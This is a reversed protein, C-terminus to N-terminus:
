KKGIVVVLDSNEVVSNNEELEAQRGSLAERLLKAEEAKGTKHYILTKEYTFRKANGIDHVVFGKAELDDAVVQASGIQGNGNLVKISIDKKSIPALTLTRDETKPQTKQDGEDDNVPQDSGQDTPRNLDEPLEPLASRESSRGDKLARLLSRIEYSVALVLGLILVLLVIYQVLDAKRAKISSESKRNMPYMEKKTKSRDEEEESKASAELFAAEAKEFEGKLAGREPESTPRSKRRPEIDLSKAM